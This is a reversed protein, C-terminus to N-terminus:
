QLAHSQVVADIYGLRTASLPRGDEHPVLLTLQAEKALVSDEIHAGVLEGSRVRV